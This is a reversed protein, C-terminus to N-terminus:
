TGVYRAYLSRATTVDDTGRVIARADAFITLEYDGTRLRVLYPNVKVEGAPRLRQALDDLDVHGAHLPSVQVADRGCMVTAIEATQADLAEYRGLACSTCDSAPAGLKIRRWENRWVDFQMLAGHLADRKGTLLKLAESVQVSAVVGIIPM